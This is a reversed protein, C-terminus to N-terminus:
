RQDLHEFVLEYGHLRRCATEVKEQLRLAFQMCRIQDPCLRRCLAQLCCAQLCRADVVPQGQHDTQKLHRRTADRVDSANLMQQIRRDTDVADRM